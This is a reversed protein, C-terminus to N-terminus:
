QPNRISFTRGAMQEPMDASNGASRAWAYVLYDAYAATPTWAFTAATSWTQAVTWATGDYVWWKFEYPATGGTAAATFTVTTGPVQPAPRDATLAVNTAFSSLIPFATGVMRESMDATNDASRAWVYVLYNVNAAAPTWAFMAAAGWNQAITWTVGDYVWWKFQHPATGGSAAATFTVTTGPLQPATRDATLTVDAVFSSLIAFPTGVMQEPMDGTNGASRVWAYVLYNVNATAPTWAFSAVASWNQAITWAVGDYVWWKFQHPAVGGIAAATLTISTGPLQPATRDATLTVETVFSSLIPFETGVM